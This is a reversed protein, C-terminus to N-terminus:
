KVGKMRLINVAKATENALAQNYFVAYLEGDVSQLEFTGEGRGVVVEVKNSMDPIVMALTFAYHVAPLNIRLGTTNNESQTTEPNFWVLENSINLFYHTFGSPAKLAELDTLDRM